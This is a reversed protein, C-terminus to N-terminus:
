INYKLQLSICTIVAMFSGQMSTRWLLLPITEMFGMISTVMDEISYPLVLMTDSWPSITALRLAQSSGPRSLHTQAAKVWSAPLRGPFTWAKEAWWWCPWSHVACASQDQIKKIVHWVLGRRRQLRFVVMFPPVPYASHSAICIMSHTKSEEFSLARSTCTFHEDLPNTNSKNPNSRIPHSFAM